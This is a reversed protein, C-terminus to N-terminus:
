RILINTTHCNFIGMSYAKVIISLFAPLPSESLLLFLRLFYFRVIFIFFSYVYQVYYWM